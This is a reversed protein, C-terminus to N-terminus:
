TVHQWVHSSRSHLWNLFPPLSALWDHSGSASATPTCLQDAQAQAPWCAARPRGAFNSWTLAAAAAAATVALVMAHIIGFTSRMAIRWCIRKWMLHTPTFLCQQHTNTRTPQCYRDICGAHSSWWGVRDKMSQLCRPRSKQSSGPAPPGACPSAASPACAPPWPAPGPPAAPLLGGTSTRTSACTPTLDAQPHPTLPNPPPGAEPPTHNRPAPHSRVHCTVPLSPSPCTPRHQDQKNPPSPWPHPAQMTVAAHPAILCRWPCQLQRHEKRIPGKQVRPTSCVCAM